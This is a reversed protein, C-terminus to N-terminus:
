RHTGLKTSRPNLSWPFFLPTRSWTTYQDDTLRRKMSATVLPISVHHFLHYVFLPCVPLLWRKVPHSSQFALLCLSCWMVWEAFYNPFRCFAFLGNRCFASDKSAAQHEGDDVFIAKQIEALAAGFFAALFFAIALGDVLNLQLRSPSGAMGLWVPLLTFFIWATQAGAWTLAARPSGRMCDLRHDRQAHMTRTAVFTALRTCWATVCTLLVVQADHRGGHVFYVVCLLNAVVLSYVDALELPIAHICYTLSASVSESVAIVCLATLLPREAIM